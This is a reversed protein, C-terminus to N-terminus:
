FASRTGVPIFFWSAATLVVMALMAACGALYRANASRRRLIFQSAALMVAVATGLWISHLLVWGLRHVVDSAMMTQWLESM